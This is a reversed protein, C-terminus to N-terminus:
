MVYPLTLGIGSYMHALWKLNDTIYKNIANYATITSHFIQFCLLVAPLDQYYQYGNIYSHRWSAILSFTGTSMSFIHYHHTLELRFRIKKWLFLLFIGFALLSFLATDFAPALFTLPLKKLLYEQLSRAGLTWIENNIKLYQTVHSSHHMTALLTSKGLLGCYQIIINWSREYTLHLM